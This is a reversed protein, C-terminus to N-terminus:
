RMSALSVITRPLTSESTLSIAANSAAPISIIPSPATLLESPRPTRSLTLEPEALVRGPVRDSLLADPLVLTRVHHRGDSQLHCTNGSQKSQCAQRDSEAAGLHGGDDDVTRCQGHGRNRQDSGQPPQQAIRCASRIQGQRNSQWPEASM